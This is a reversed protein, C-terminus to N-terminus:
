STSFEAASPEGIYKVHGDNLKIMYDSQSIVNWNHSIVLTISNYRKTHERLLKVVSKENKVDLASTPEDLICIPSRKLLAAAIGLRQKQGGSLKVGRVGIVTNLGDPLTSILDHLKLKSLMDDLDQQVCDPARVCLNHLITEDFIVPEQGVLSFQRRYNNLDFVNVNRDDFLIAGESPSHLRLLLDILTTKGAGSPGVLSYVKGKELTIDLNKIVDQDAGSYKFTVRKFRIVDPAEVVMDTGSNLEPNAEFERILNDISNFRPLYNAIVNRMRTLNLFLPTTRMMMIICAIIISIDLLEFKIANIVGIFLLTFLSVILISRTLVGAKEARLSLAFVSNTLGKVNDLESTTLRDIKLTRRQTYAREARQSLELSQHTIQESFSKVRRIAFNMVLFFVLGVGVSILALAPATSVIVVLYTTITFILKLAQTLVQLLKGSDRSNLSAMEVFPGAGLRDTKQYDGKLLASILSTKLNAEVESMGKRNVILLFYAFIERFILSLIILGSLVILMDLYPFLLQIQNLAKDILENESLVTEKETSIRSLFIVVCIFAFMESMASATVMLLLFFVHRRGSSTYNLLRFWYEFLPYFPIPREM